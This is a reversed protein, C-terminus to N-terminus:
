LQAFRVFRSRRNSSKKGRGTGRKEEEKILIVELSMGKATSEGIDVLSDGDSVRRVRGVGAVWVQTEHGSEGGQLEAPGGSM